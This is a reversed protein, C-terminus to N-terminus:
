VIEPKVPGLTEWKGAFTPRLEIDKNENREELNRLLLKQIEPYRKSRSLATEHASSAAQRPDAGAELLLKVAEIQGNQAAVTLPLFEDSEKAPAAEAGKELLCKIISPPMSAAAYALAANLSARKEGPSAKSFLFEAIKENKVVDLGICLRAYAIGRSWEDYSSAPLFMLDARDIINSQSDNKLEGFLFGEEEWPVIGIFVVKEVSVNFFENLFAAHNGSKFYKASEFLKRGDAYVTDGEESQIQALIYPTATKFSLRMLDVINKGSIVDLGLSKVSSIVAKKIPEEKKREAYETIKGPAELMISQSSHARLEMSHRRLQESDRIRKAKEFVDAKTSSGAKKGETIDAIYKANRSARHIKVTKM